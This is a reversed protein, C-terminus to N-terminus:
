SVEIAVQISYNGYINQILFLFNEMLIKQIKKKTAFLGSHIITKKILGLGNQNIALSVFNEILFHYLFNIRNERFVTIIKELVHVANIDKALKEVMGPGKLANVIMQQEEFSILSEIITQLPYNGINDSCIAFFHQTICNLFDLRMKQNLLLFFKQIFYNGYQHRILSPIAFKIEEFILSIIQPDSNALSQQLLKSGNYNQILYSFKGRFSSYFNPSIFNPFNEEQYALLSNNNSMNLCNNYNLKFEPCTNMGRVIQIPSTMPTIIQQQVSSKWKLEEQNLSLGGSLHASTKYKKPVREVVREVLKKQTSRERKMIRSDGFVPTEEEEVLMSTSQSSSTLKDEGDEMMLKELMNTLDEEINLVKEKGSSEQSDLKKM